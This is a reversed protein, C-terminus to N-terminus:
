SREGFLAVDVRFPRLGCAQHLQEQFRREASAQVTGSRGRGRRHQEQRWSPEDRDGADRASGQQHLRLVDRRYQVAERDREGARGRGDNVLQAFEVYTKPDNSKSAHQLKYITEPNWNHHEGQIRYHIEGGFDLQHIATHEYAVHHRRLTEEGIERIGVGEVRSPTGTFYRDIIEHNLGIAEFIQAGCYSQVTSIGMKSFIKLLGKNIAKIFKGEATQADLGEPLYNDREMDVLSEFVLYPNITGAGYGILCAFQHVDRPEGTELILGVETRTCERVLHHHVASIGLLSPIPAWHEDVGRDSLILFKYGDKIAQSAERCMADVAAGLGDPGEAVRFLMRLTKSKFHPDSIGRIKQLDANTLIPQQVKIRRCSEPSEDM